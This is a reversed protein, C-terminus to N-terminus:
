RRDSYPLVYEIGVALSTARMFKAGSIVAGEAQELYTKRPQTYMDGFGINRRLDFTLRLLGANGDGGSLAFGGGIGLMLGADFGRYEDFRSNGMSLTETAGLPFTQTGSDFIGSRKGKLGSSFSPGATLTLGGLESGWVTFRALLPFSIRTLREEIKAIGVVENGDPDTAIYNDVTEQIHVNREYRLDTLLAFRGWAYGVRIGGAFDAQKKDDWNTPLDGYRFDETRYAKAVNGEAVLGGMLGYQAQAFTSCLLALSLILNRM